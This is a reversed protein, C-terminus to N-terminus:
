PVLIHIPLIAAAQSGFIGPDMDTDGDIWCHSVLGGLTFVGAILNDPQLANDIALLMQNMQTAALVTEQGIDEDVGPAQFYLIIYGHLVLQTPVGRPKPKHQEKVQVLFFAPQEATGLDPPLKHKRGMSAFMGAPMESQFWAFLAAWVAERDVSQYQSMPNM